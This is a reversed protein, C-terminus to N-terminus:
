FTGGIPSQELRRPCGLCTPRAGIWSPHRLPSVIEGWRSTSPARDEIRVFSLARKGPRLARVAAWGRRGHRAVPLEGYRRAPRAHRAGCRGARADRGGARGRRPYPAHRRLRLGGRTASGRSGCAQGRAAHGRPGGAPARARADGTDLAEVSLPAAPIPRRPDRELMGSTAYVPVGPLRAELARAHPQHGPGRRGRDRRRRSRGGGASSSTPSRRSRAGTSRRTSRSRGTAAPAPWSRPRSSAGYVEQDFIVALRETGRERM